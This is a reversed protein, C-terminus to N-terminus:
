KPGNSRRNWRPTESEGRRIQDKNRRLRRPGQKDEETEPRQTDDEMKTTAIGGVNRTITEGRGNRTKPYRVKRNKTEGRGNRPNENEETIHRQLEVEM